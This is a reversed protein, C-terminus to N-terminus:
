SASFLSSRSTLPSNIFTTWAASHQHPKPHLVLRLSL